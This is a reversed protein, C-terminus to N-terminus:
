SAKLTDKIRDLEPLLADHDVPDLAEVSFVVLGQPAEFAIRTDKVRAKRSENYGEYSVEVAKYPGAKTDRYEVNKRETLRGARIFRELSERPQSLRSQDNHIRISGKGGGPRADLECLYESYEVAMGTREVPVAENVKWAAPIDFAVPLACPSGAAGIRQTKVKTDYAPEAKADGDSGSCGTALLAVVAAGGTLVTRVGHRTGHQAM